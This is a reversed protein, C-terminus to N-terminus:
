FNMGCWLWCIGTFDTLIEVVSFVTLGAIITAVATVIIGKNSKKPPKSLVLETAKSVPLNTLPMEFPKSSLDESAIDFEPQAVKTWVGDKLTMLKKRLIETHIHFNLVENGQLVPIHQAIEKLSLGQNRLEVVYPILKDAEDHKFFSFPTFTM